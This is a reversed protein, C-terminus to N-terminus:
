SHKSEAIFCSTEDTEFPSNFSCVYRVCCIGLFAIICLSFNKLFRLMNVYFYGLVYM